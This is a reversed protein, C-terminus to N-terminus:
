GDVKIGSEHRELFKTNPTIGTGIIAMEVNL